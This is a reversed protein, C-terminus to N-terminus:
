YNILTGGKCPPLRQNSELMAWWQKKTIKNFAKTKEITLTLVSM